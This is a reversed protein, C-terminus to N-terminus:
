LSLRMESLGALGPLQPNGESCCRLEDLYFNFSGRQWQRQCGSCLNLAPSGGKDLM